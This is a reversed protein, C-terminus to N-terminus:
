SPNVANFHKIIGDRRMWQNKEEREKRRKGEERRKRFGKRRQESRWNGRMEGVKM